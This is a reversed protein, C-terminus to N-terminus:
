TLYGMLDLSNILPELFILIISVVMMGANKIKADPDENKFAMVLAGVSYAVMLIGIVRFVLLIIGIMKSVIEVDGLTATEITPKVTETTGTAWVSTASLLMLMVAFVLLRSIRAYSKKAGEPMASAEAHLVNITKTTTNKVGIFKNYLKQM